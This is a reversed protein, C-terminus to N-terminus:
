RADTCQLFISFTLVGFSFRLRAGFYKFDTLQLACTSQMNQLAVYHQEHAQNISLYVSPQAPNRV